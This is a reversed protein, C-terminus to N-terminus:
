YLGDPLSNHNTGMYAIIEEASYLIGTEGRSGVLGVIVSAVDSRMDTSLQRWLLSHHVSHREPNVCVLSYVFAQQDLAGLERRAFLLDNVIFLGAGADSGEGRYFDKKGDSSTAITVVIPTDTDKFVQCFFDKTEAIAREKAAAIGIRRREEAELEERRRKEAIEDCLGILSPVDTKTTM